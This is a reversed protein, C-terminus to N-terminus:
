CFILSGMKEDVYTFDGDVYVYMLSGWMKGQPLKDELTIGFGIEKLRAQMIPPFRKLDIAYSSFPRTRLTTRKKGINQDGYFTM